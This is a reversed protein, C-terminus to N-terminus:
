PRSGPERTREPMPRDVDNRSPVDRAMPPPSTPMPISSHTMSGGGATTMGTSSGNTTGSNGHPTSNWPPVGGVRSPRPHALDYLHRGQPDPGYQGCGCANFGGPWISGYGFGYPSVWGWEFPLFTYCGLGGSWAWVGGYGYNSPFLGNFSARAFLSNTQNRALAANEKALERGRERSWDDLADRDNKDLKATEAGGAGLRISSGAKLVEAGESEGVLARGKYVAVETEGSAQVNLRYVGSHVLRVNGKPTNIVISLDLDDYGVAEVVASGRALVLQLKDLSDDAITFETGEGARFYSGPNLLVEVRGDPGTRATDGSKLNDKVTLRQWDTQGALRVSVDGAVFNVGGARASILRADRSSRSQAAAYASAFSLAILIRLTNKLIKKM